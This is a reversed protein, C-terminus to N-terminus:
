TYYRSKSPGTLQGTMPGSLQGTMPGTGSQGTVVKKWKNMKTEEPGKTKLYLIPKKLSRDIARDHSRNIARDDSRNWIARDHSEEVQEDENRRARENSYLIPNKLSRDNARDDSRDSPRDTFHDGVARSLGVTREQENEQEGKDVTECHEEKNSISCFSSRDNSRDCVPGRVPGFRDIARYSDMQRQVENKLHNYKQNARYDNEPMRRQM